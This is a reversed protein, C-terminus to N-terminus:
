YPEPLQEPALVFRDVDVDPEPEALDAPPPTWTRGSLHMIQNILLNRERAQERLSSRHLGVFVYVVVVNLLFSCSLALWTM